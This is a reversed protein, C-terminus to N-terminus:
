DASTSDNIRRDGGGHNRDEIPIPEDYWCEL